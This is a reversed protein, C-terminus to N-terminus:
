RRASFLSSRAGPVVFIGISVVLISAAALVSAAAWAVITGLVSGKSCRRRLGVWAVLALLLPVSVPLVVWFGNVGVLTASSTTVEGGSTLSQSGDLPALFAVPVLALAAAVGASALGFALRGSGDEGSTVTM